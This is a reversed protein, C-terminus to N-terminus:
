LERHRFVRVSVAYSTAWLLALCSLLLLDFGLPGFRQHLGLIGEVVREALLNDASSGSLQVVTFLVIGVVQLAALSLMLGLAGFRMTFPLILTIFLSTVSIAALLPAWRLLLEPGLQTGPLWSGLCIASLIGLLALILSLAYRAKVVTRRDVPLSCVLAMAKFKDERTVIMAPMFSVMVSAFVMFVMPSTPGRLTMYLFFGGFVTANVLMATRNLILDMRMVKYM